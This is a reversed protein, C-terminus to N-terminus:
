NDFDRNLYGRVFMILTIKQFNFIDTKSTNSQTTSTLFALLPYFFIVTTISLSQCDQQQM